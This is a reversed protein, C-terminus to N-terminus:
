ARGTWIRIPNGHRTQRSSPRYGVALIIGARRACAFAAGISNSGIPAERQVDDASFDIRTSALRRIISLALDFGDPDGAAAAEMGSAAAHAALDFRYLELQEPGTM